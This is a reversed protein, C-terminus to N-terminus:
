VYDRASNSNVERGEAFVLVPSEATRKWVEAFVKNLLAEESEFFFRDLQSRKAAPM